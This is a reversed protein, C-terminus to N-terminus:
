LYLPGPPAPGRQGAERGRSATPGAFALLHCGLSYRPFNHSFHFRKGVDAVKSGFFKVLARPCGACTLYALYLRFVSYLALSLLFHMVLPEIRAAILWPHSVFASVLFGPDPCLPPAM